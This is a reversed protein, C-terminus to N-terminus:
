LSQLTKGLGMEDALAGNLNLVRLFSMWSIGEKQYERLEIKSKSLSNLLVEPLPTSPLPKGHILHDVVKRFSEDRDQHSAVKPQTDITVLPALRVLKAFTSAASKSCKQIPDTMMSMSVPLLTQMFPLMAVGIKQVMQSLLTCAGLRQADDDNADLSKLLYPLIIPISKLPDRYVINTTTVVAKQRVFNDTYSCSLLVTTPLLDSIVQQTTKTDKTLTSSLECLLILAKALTSQSVKAPNKSRLCELKQWLTNFNTLNENPPISRLLINLVYRSTEMGCQTIDNPLQGIQPDYSALKCINEVIKEVVQQRSSQRLLTVLNVLDEGCIRARYIADENKISTMLNRIIGTLKTPLHQVGFSIITGAISSLLRMHKKSKKKFDFTFQKMDIGFHEFMTDDHMTDDSPSATSQNNLIDGMAKLTAKTCHEIFMGDARVHEIGEQCDFIMCKAGDQLMELLIPSFKSVVSCEEEDSRRSIVKLIISGAECYEIFPSELLCSVFATIIATIGQLQDIKDYFQIFAISACHLSQFHRSTKCKINFETSPIRLRVDGKLSESFDINVFRFLLILLLEQILPIDDDQILLVLAEILAMWAKDRAEYMVGMNSRKDDDEQLVIMEETKEDDISTDYVYSDFFNVLLNIYLKMTRNESCRKSRSKSISCGINEQIFISAIPKAIIALSEFCRLRVSHDDFYLFENMKHLLEDAGNSNHSSQLLGMSNLVLESDFSIMSSFLNLLDMTSSSTTQVQKLAEWTQTVSKSIIKRQQAQVKNDMDEKEEKASMINQTIFSKLVQASTGKVDDSQDLLGLHAHGSIRSWVDDLHFHRHCRVRHRNRAIKLHLLQESERAEAISKFSLMSGHRVEWETKYQSLKVLIKYCPKQVLDKPSMELLFSLVKAAVERVPATMAASIIAEDNENANDHHDDDDDHKCLSGQKQKSKITSGAYDGFRDLALICLCRTLIDQPWKGFYHNKLSHDLKDDDNLDDISNSISMTSSSKWSKLLALLGLLSGHRVHWSPHVSNYIMDTALINQPTQHSLQYRLKTTATTTTSSSSSTNKPFAHQQHNLSLLLINRITLKEGEDDDEEEEAKNEKEKEQENSNIRDDKRKQRKGNKSTDDDYNHNTGKRKGIRQLNRERASLKSSKMKDNEDVHQQMGHGEMKNVLDDDTVLDQTNINMTLFSNGGIGGLGLRSALIRRQLAIRRTLLKEQEEISTSSLTSTDLSAMMAEEQEYTNNSNKYHRQQIKYQTENSSLLLRGKQLVQNLTEWNEHQNESDDETPLLDSVTLWMKDNSSSANNQVSDDECNSKDSVDRMFCRRDVMPIYRAVHEMALAICERRTLCDDGGGKSTSSSSTHNSDHNEDTLSAYLRALIDWLLLPHSKSAIKSLIGIAHYTYDNQSDDNNNNNKDNTASSSSNPATSSIILKILRLTHPTLKLPKPQNSPTENSQAM